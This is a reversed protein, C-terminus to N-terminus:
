LKDPSNEVAKEYKRLWAHADDWDTLSIYDYLLYQKGSNKTFVAYYLQIEITDFKDVKGSTHTLWAHASNFAANSKHKSIKNDKVVQLDINM